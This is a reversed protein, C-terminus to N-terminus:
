LLGAWKAFNWIAGLSLKRIDEPGLFFSGLYAHRLSALAECECPVHVSTEEETGCKKFGWIGRPGFFSGLYTPPDRKPSEPLCVHIFSHISWHCQHHLIRAWPSGKLSCPPPESVPSESPFISQSINLSVYFHGVLLYKEGYPAGTPFRSPIRKSPSKSPFPYCIQTGKKSGSSTLTKPFTTSPLFGWDLNQTLTLGQSWESMRIQTWEKQDRLIERFKTYPGDPVKSFSCPEELKTCFLHCLPGTKFSLHM